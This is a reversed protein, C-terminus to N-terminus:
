SDRRITSGTLSNCPGCSPRINGKEYKGGKCGPKIRDVTLMGETLLLGCRYCRCCGPVDAAFVELLWARRAARQKTNGRTNSNSTGRKAKTRNILEKLTM